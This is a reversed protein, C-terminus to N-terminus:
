KAAEESSGTGRRSTRWAHADLRSDESLIQSVISDDREVWEQHTDRCYDEVRKGDKKAFWLPNETHRKVGEVRGLDRELVRARYDDFYYGEKVSLQSTILDVRFRRAVKIDGAKRTGLFSQRTLQSFSTGCDDFFVLTRESEGDGDPFDNLSPLREDLEEALTQHRRANRVQTGGQQEMKEYKKRLLNLAEGFIQREERTEITVSPM